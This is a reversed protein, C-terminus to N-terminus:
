IRERIFKKWRWIKMTGFRAIEFKEETNFRYKSRNKAERIRECYYCNDNELKKVIIIGAYEPIYKIDNEKYKFDSLNIETKVDYAYRLLYDPIAFYLKKIRNENDNHKHWKKIDAKLDSLSIKIEIEYAYNNPTIILLDCEHFRMAEFNPVILNRRYNFYEAIAIEM